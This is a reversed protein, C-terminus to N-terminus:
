LEKINMEHIVQDLQFVPGNRCILHGGLQCHGCHGVGCKMSRELSLYIKDARYGRELLEQSALRMMIDPGCLFATTRQLNTQLRKLPRTVLGVQGKWGLPAHDVTVEVQFTQAWRHLESTFLLDNPSRAGYILHITQYRARNKELHLILPRLPVVGLGGCVIVVEEGENQNTPWSTGFPGRVGLIDGEKLRSLGNTVSGVNRITHIWHDVQGTEGSISIPVDGFGFAYLMNFQGPLFRLVKESGALHPAIELTFVDQTEQRRSLVRFVEPLSAATAM